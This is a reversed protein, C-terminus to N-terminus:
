PRCGLEARFYRDYVARLQTVREVPYQTSAAELAAGQWEAAEECHGMEALALAVTEAHSVTPRAEYVARALGFARDGNRLELVPLSALLRALLHAINGSSPLLQHASEVGSLAEEYREAATRAKALEIHAAEDSPALDVVIELGAIAEPLNGVGRQAEALLRRAETDRPNGAVVQSLLEVAEEYAGTHQRLRALNFVATLNTPDLQTARELDALAQDVLGLSTAAAARDSLARVSDPAAAVAEDFAAMAEEFRSARFASRGRILALREGRAASAVEELFPDDPRIGVLGRQELHEQAKERDGLGRYALALSYHLRNADPVRELVSQLREVAGGFDGRDLALEGLAAQAALNEPQRLLVEQLMVEAVENKGIERWALAIRLRSLTSDQDLSLSNRFDTIADEYRGMEVLVMGRAYPWRPDGPVWEQGLSYATLAADRLEYAHYAIALDWLREMREEMTAADSTWTEITWSRARELQEAVVPELGDLQVVPLRDVPAEIEEAVALGALLSGLLGVGYMWRM